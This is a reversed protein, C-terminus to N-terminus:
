VQENPHMWNIEVDKKFWTMQRKAYHRTNIKIKEIAEKLTTNNDFFHFLEKYGVTQLANLQKYPQLHEVENVLGQEVMTDVRQNIRNYLEQKPLELGIKVINFDREVRKKTKYFTISNGTTEVIELARLLRQPNQQEATQWFQFDKNKVENQLWALGQQNYQHTINNRVETSITPMEDIGNCFTNVYLGTGGVM